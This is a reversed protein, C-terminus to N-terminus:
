GDINARKKAIIIKNLNKLLDDFTEVKSFRLFRGNQSDAKYPNSIKHGALILSNYNKKVKNQRHSM